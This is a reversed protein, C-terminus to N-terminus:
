VRHQHVLEVVGAPYAVASKLHWTQLPLARTTLRRGAGLLTPVVRLRLEDVAGAELLSAGLTLSGWVVVDGAYGQTLRRAVDVGDGRELVAPPHEGWPAAELTSSVVHKPTTNIFGALRQQAASETPWFQAFLRYTQAGLLIAECTRLRSLQDDTTADLGGGASHFDLDGAEDAAFGDISVITDLILIGM